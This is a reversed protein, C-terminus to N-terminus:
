KIEGTKITMAYIDGGITTFYIVGGAIGPSSHIQNRANFKWRLQESRTDVAYLNNDYSGFYGIGGAVAPSSNVNGEGSTIFRWKINRSSLSVAYLCRNYTGFYAVSDAITPSSTIERGIRTKWKLKGSQKIDKAEYFGSHQLDRRFMTDNSTLEPKVDPKNNCSLFILGAFILLNLLYKLM